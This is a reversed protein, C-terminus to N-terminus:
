PAVSRPTGAVGRLRVRITALLGALSAGSLLVCQVVLAYSGALVAEFAWALNASLGMLWGWVSVASAAVSRVVDRVARVYWALDLPAVYVLAVWGWRGAVLCSLVSFALWPLVQRPTSGTYRVVLATQLLALGSSFLLLLYFERGVGSALGLWTGYSLVGIGCLQISVGDATRGRVMRRLGPLYSLPGLAAAGFKLLSLLM